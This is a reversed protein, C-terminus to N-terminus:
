MFGQRLMELLQLQQHRQMLSEIHSNLHQNFHSNAVSMKGAPSGEHEADRFQNNAEHLDDLLVPSTDKHQDLAETTEDGERM